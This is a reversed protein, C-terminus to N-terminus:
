GKPARTTFAAMKTLADMAAREPPVGIPPRKRRGVVRSFQEGTLDDRNMPRVIVRNCLERPVAVNAVMEPLQGGSERASAQGIRRSASNAAATASAPQPVRPLP